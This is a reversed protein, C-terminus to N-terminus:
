WDGVDTVVGGHRIGCKPCICEQAAVAPAAERSVTKAGSAQPAADQLTSNGVPASKTFDAKGESESLVSSTFSKIDDVLWLPIRYQMGDWELAGVKALLRQATALPEEQSMLEGTHRPLNVSEAWPLADLVRVVRRVAPM